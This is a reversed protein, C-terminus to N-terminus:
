LEKYNLITEKKLYEEMNEYKKVSEIDTIKAWTPAFVFCDIAHQIAPKIIERYILFGTGTILNPKHVTSFNFGRDSLECYGLKGDKEFRFWNENEGVSFIKFGNEKLLKKYEKIEMEIGGKINITFYLM